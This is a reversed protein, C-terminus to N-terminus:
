KCVSKGSGKLIGNVVEVVTSLYDEIWKDVLKKIDYSWLFCVPVYIYYTSMMLFTNMKRGWDKM